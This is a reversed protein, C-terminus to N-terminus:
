FEAAEVHYQWGGLRGIQKRVVPKRFPERLTPEALRLEHRERRAVRAIEPDDTSVVVRAPGGLRRAAQHGIRVARGVLPVGGVCLLNKGPLRKSGGRALILYLTRHDIDM